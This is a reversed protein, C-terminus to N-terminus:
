YFKLILSLFVFSVFTIRNLSIKINDLNYNYLIESESYDKFYFSKNKKNKEENKM